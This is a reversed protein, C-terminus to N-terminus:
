SHQLILDVYAIIKEADTPLFTEYSEDKRFWTLQRKAYNRTHQKVLEIAKDLSTKKDLYDFLEKYGVTNLANLNKYAYVSEAEQLFCSEMMKDVRRNIKDYLREREENVLIKIVSFNREATKNKRFSSYPLGTITIIELARMLRRPNNIDAKDFYVPDHKKIEEQLWSLGKEKYQEEINNKVEVDTVLGEDFGKCVADIFLGSGGCMIVLQHKKFLEDLKKLVEKEYDGVSYPQQISICDIFHHKIGQQEEIGPKATGISIEKYM